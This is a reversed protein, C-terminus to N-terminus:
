SLNIKGSEVMGDREPRSSKVKIKNINEHSAVSNRKGTSSTRVPHFEPIGSFLKRAFRRIKPPDSAPPDLFASNTIIHPFTQIHSSLHYSDRNIRPRLQQLCVVGVIVYSKRCYYHRLSEPNWKCKSIGLLQSQIGTWHGLFQGAM